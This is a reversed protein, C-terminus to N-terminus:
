FQIKKANLPKLFPWYDARSFLKFIRVCCFLVYCFQVATYRTLRETKIGIGEEGKPTLFVVHRDLLDVIFGLPLLELPSDVHCFFIKNKLIFIM